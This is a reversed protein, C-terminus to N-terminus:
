QDAADERRMALIAQDNRGLFHRRRERGRQDGDLVAPEFTVQADVQTGNDPRAEDIERM